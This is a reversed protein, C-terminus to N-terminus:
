GFYAKLGAMFAIGAVIALLQVMSRRADLEHHLMPVLDSGAIYVFGGATAATIAASVAPSLSVALVALGLGLLSTLATVLNYLLARRPRMGGAVLVGYHGLESPIEHCIVALSTTLGIKFNLAYAAGIILGDTLNHLSDGVLTMPVVPHYHGEEPIHCHRWRLFKELVFFVLFGALILWPAQGSVRSDAFLEPLLHFFVDGFLVGVALSVLVFILPGSRGIGLVLFLYGLAGLASVLAVSALAWGANIM